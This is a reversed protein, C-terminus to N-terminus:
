RQFNRIKAEEYKYQFFRILFRMAGILLIIGVLIILWNEPLNPLVFKPIEEIGKSLVVM